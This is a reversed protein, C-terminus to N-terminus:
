KMQCKINGGIIENKKLDNFVKLSKIPKDILSEVYRGLFRFLLLVQRNEPVTKKIESLDEEFIKKLYVFTNESLKVSEMDFSRCKECLISSYRFSFRVNGAPINKCNACSSFVPRNGSMNILLVEFIIANWYPNIDSNDTKELFELILYFINENKDKECTLENVIEIVYSASIFKDFDDYINIFKENSEASILQNLNNAINEVFIVESLSILDLVGGNREQNLLNKNVVRLKGFDKTYLVAILGAEGFKYRRLVIGETKALMYFKPFM